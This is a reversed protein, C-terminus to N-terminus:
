AETLCWVGAGTRASEEDTKTISTAPCGAGTPASATVAHTVAPDSCPREDVDVNTGEGEVLVICSGLDLVDDTDGPQRSQLCFGFAETQGSATTSSFTRVINAEPPCVPDATNTALLVVVNATPDTCPVEVLDDDTNVACDGVALSALPNPAPATTTTTTTPAATTTTPEATTTTPAETTTTREPAETTDPETTETELEDAAAEDGDGDGGSLVVLAAVLGLVVVAVAVVWHWPRLGGDGGGGGPYSGGAAPYGGGLHGSGPYSGGPVPAGAGPYGSGAGPYGAGSGPHAGAGPYPSAAAAPPQTADTWRVGDWWRAVPAGHPDAYWGPPTPNSVSAGEVVQLSAAAGRDGISAALARARL